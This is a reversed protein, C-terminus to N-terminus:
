YWDSTKGQEGISSMDFRGVFGTRYGRWRRYRRSWRLRRIVEPEIPM